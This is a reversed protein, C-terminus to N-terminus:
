KLAAPKTSQHRSFIEFRHVSPLLLMLAVAVIEFAAVNLAILLWLAVGSYMQALVATSAFLVAASAVVLGRANTHRGVLFALVFTCILVVVM